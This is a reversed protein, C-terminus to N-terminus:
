SVGGQGGGGGDGGGGGGGGGGRNNIVDAYETFLHQVNGMYAAPIFSAYNGEQYPINAFSAAKAIEHFSHAGASGLHGLVAIAYLHLQDGSIGFITAVEMLDTTTGSIGGALPMDLILRARQIFANSEDMTLRDIGRQHEQGGGQGQDLGNGPTATTTASQMGTGQATNVGNGERAAIGSATGTTPVSTGTGFTENVRSERDKPAFRGREAFEAREQGGEEKRMAKPAVAQLQFNFTQGSEQGATHLKDVIQNAFDGNGGKDWIQDIFQHHAFVHQPLTGGGMLLTRMESAIDGRLESQRDALRGFFVTNPKEDTGAFHAGLARLDADAQALGASVKADFYSLMRRSLDHVVGLCPGPNQLIAATLKVEFEVKRAPNFNADRESLSAGADGVTQGALEPREQAVEPRVQEGLNGHLAQVAAKEGAGRHVRRQVSKAQVPAGGTMQSLLGEASQGSVVADAVADAHQEYSDGAQGVGGSLSVGAQQQVVHAAEHAATHLDPAGGFVVHNGTAYAEAGMAQSAAAANSGTHAQVQSVDHAGFSAQIKDAYPLAGGGSAIGAAAAEHVGATDEGGGHRQVAADPALMSMQVDLPKGGLARKLQVPAPSGGSTTTPSTTTSPKDQRTVIESSM